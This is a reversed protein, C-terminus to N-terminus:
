RREGDVLAVGLRLHHGTTVLAAAPRKMVASGAAVARLRAATTVVLDGIGRLASAIILAAVPHVAVRHAAQHVAM